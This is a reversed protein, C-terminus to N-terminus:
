WTRSGATPRQRTLTTARRWVFHGTPDDEARMLMYEGPGMSLKIVAVALDPHGIRIM